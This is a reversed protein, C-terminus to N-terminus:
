IREHVRPRLSFVATSTFYGNLFFKTLEMLQLRNNKYSHSNFPYRAYPSCIDRETDVKLAPLWFLGIISPVIFPQLTCM